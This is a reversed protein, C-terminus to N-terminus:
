AGERQEATPTCSQGAVRAGLLMIRMATIYESQKKEPIMSIEQFLAKANDTQMTTMTNVEAIIEIANNYM